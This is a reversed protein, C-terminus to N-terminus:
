DAGGARAPAEPNFSKLAQAAAWAEDTNPVARAVREYRRRAEANRNQKRELGAAALEAIRTKRLAPGYM